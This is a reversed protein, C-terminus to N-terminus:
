RRRKTKKPEPVLDLLRADALLFLHDLLAARVGEHLDPASEIRAM